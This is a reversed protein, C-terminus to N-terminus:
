PGVRRKTMYTQRKEFIPAAPQEDADTSFVVEFVRATQRPFPGSDHVAKEVAAAYAPDSPQRIRKVGVMNGDDDLYIEVRYTQPGAPSGPSPRYRIRSRIAAMQQETLPQDPKRWSQRQADQMIKAIEPDLPQRSSSSTGNGSLLHSFVSLLMVIMFGFGLRNPASSRMDLKPAAAPAPADAKAADAYPWDRAPCSAMWHAVAQHPAVLGLWQPYHAAMTRLTRILNWMTQQPPPEPKRLLALLHRQRARAAPPQAEFAAQQNLAVDLVRGNIHLRALARRDTDWGFVQAAAPFLWEHGPRWGAALLGAMGQEFHARAELHELRADLLARRLAAVWPDLGADAAHALLAPMAACLDDFVARAQEFPSVGSAAAPQPEGDRPLSAPDPAAQESATHAAPEPQPEGPAATQAAQAVHEAWALAREYCERLQQFAAPDGGQDILKLERAYARRIARADAGTDLQLRALFPHTAM